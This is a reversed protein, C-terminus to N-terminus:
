LGSAGVTFLGPISLGASTSTTGHVLPTLSGAASIIGSNYEGSGLLLALEEIGTQQAGADHVQSGTLASEELPLLQTQNATQAALEESALQAEYSTPIISEALGAALQDQSTQQQAATQYEALSLQANTQQSQASLQANQAAAAAQANQQSSIASAFGGSSSSQRSILYFVVLLAIVGGAAATPHKKVWELAKNM